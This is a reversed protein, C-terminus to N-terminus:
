KQLLNNAPRSIYYYDYLHDLKSIENNTSTFAPLMSNYAESISINSGNCARTGYGYYAYEKINDTITPESLKKVNSWCLDLTKINHSFYSCNVLYVYGTNYIPISTYYKNKDAYDDIFTTNEGIVVGYSRIAADIAPIVKSNNIFNSNRLYLAGCNEISKPFSDVNVSSLMVRQNEGSAYLFHFTNSEDQGITKFTTNDGNLLLQEVNVKFLTGDYHRYFKFVHNKEFNLVIKDIHVNSCSFPNYLSGDNVVYRANELDVDNCVDIVVSSQSAVHSKDSGMFSSQKSSGAMKVYEIIKKNIEILMSMSSTIAFPDGNNKNQLDTLQMLHGVIGNPAGVMSYKNTFYVHTKSTYTTPTSEKFCNCPCTAYAHANAETNTKYPLLGYDVVMAESYEIVPIVMSSSTSAGNQISIDIFICNGYVDDWSSVCITGNNFKNGECYVNGRGACIANGNKATNNMFDSYTVFVDHTAMSSFIAGGHYATNNTFRDMMVSSKYNSSYYMDDFYIAGGKGGVNNTFNNLSSTTRSCAIYVAGGSYNAQNNNFVNHILTLNCNYVHLAAGNGGWKNNIFSNEYINANVHDLCVASYSGKKFFDDFINKCLEPNILICNSMNLDCNKADMVAGCGTFNTFTINSLTVHGGAINFLSTSSAGDITHNNGNIVYDGSSIAIGNFDKDLSSNFKYDNNLTYNGSGKGLLSKLDTLSNSQNGATVNSDSVVSNDYTSVGNSVQSNLGNTVNLNLESDTNASITDTANLSCQDHASVSDVCVLGCILILVFFVFKNNM